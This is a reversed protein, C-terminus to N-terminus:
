VRACGPYADWHDKGSKLWAQQAEQVLDLEERTYQKRRGYLPTTMFPQDTLKWKGESKVWAKALGQFEPRRYAEPVGYARVWSMGHREFFIMSEEYNRALLEKFDTLFEADSTPAWNSVSAPFWTPRYCATVTTCLYEDGGYNCWFAELTRVGPGLLKCEGMKLTPPLPLKPEAKVASAPLIAISAIAPVLGLLQRREM